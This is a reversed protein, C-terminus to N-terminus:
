DSPEALPKAQEVRAIASKALKESLSSSASSQYNTPLNAGLVKKITDPSFGNEALTTVITPVATGSLLCKVVWQKWAPPM